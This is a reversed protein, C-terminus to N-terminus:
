QTQHPDSSFVNSPSSHNRIFQIYKASCGAILILTLYNSLLCICRAKNCFFPMFSLINQFFKIKKLLKGWVSRGSLAQCFWGIRLCSAFSNFLKNNFDLLFIISKGKKYLLGTGKMKIHFEGLLNELEGEFTCMNQFSPFVYYYLNCSFQSIKNAM